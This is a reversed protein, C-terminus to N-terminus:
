LNEARYRHEVAGESHTLFLKTASFSNEGSGQELLSWKMRNGRIVGLDVYANRRACIAHGCEEIWATRLSGYSHDFVVASFSPNMRALDSRNEYYYAGIDIAYVDSLLLGIGCYESQIVNASVAKGRRLAVGVTQRMVAYIWREGPEKAANFSATRTFPAQWNPPVHWHSEGDASRMVLWGFPSTLTSSIRWAIQDTTDGRTVLVDDNNLIFRGAHSNNNTMIIQGFHWASEGSRATGSEGGLVVGAVRFGQGYIRDYSLGLPHEWKNGFYVFCEAERFDITDLIAFSASGADDTGFLRCGDKGNGEIRLGRLDYSGSPQILYGSFDPTARITASPAGRVSHGWIAVPESSKPKLSRGILYTAGSRCMIQRGSEIAALFAGSDDNVGNGKAGYMEPTVWEVTPNHPGVAPTNSAASGAGHVAALTTVGAVGLLARRRSLGDTSNADSM